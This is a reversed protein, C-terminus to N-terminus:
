KRFLSLDHIRKPPRVILYPDIEAPPHIFFAPASPILEKFGGFTTTRTSKETKKTKELRNELDVLASNEQLASISNNENSSTMTKTTSSDDKNGSEPKKPPDWSIRTDYAITYPVKPPVYSTVSVIELEDNEPVSDSFFTLWLNCFKLKRFIESVKTLIKLTKKRFTLTFNSICHTGFNRSIVFILTQFYFRM